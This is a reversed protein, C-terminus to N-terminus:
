AVPNISNDSVWDRPQNNMCEFLAFSIRDGSRGRAEAGRMFVAQSHSYIDAQGAKPGLSSMGNISGLNNKYWIVFHRVFFKDGESELITNRDNSEVSGVLQIGEVLVKVVEEALSQALNLAPIIDEDGNNGACTSEERRVDM